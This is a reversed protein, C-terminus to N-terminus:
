YGEACSVRSDELLQAIEEDSPVWVKFDPDDEAEPAIWGKKIKLRLTGDPLVECGAFSAWKEGAWVRVVANIYALMRERKTAPETVEITLESAM